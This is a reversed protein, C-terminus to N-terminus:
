SPAPLLCQSCQFGLFLSKGALLFGEGQTSGELSRAQVMPDPLREGSAWRMERLCFDCSHYLTPFCSELPTWPYFRKAQLFSTLLRVRCHAPPVRESIRPSWPLSAWSPAKALPVSLCSPWQKSSCHHNFKLLHWLWPEWAKFHLRLLTYVPFTLPM